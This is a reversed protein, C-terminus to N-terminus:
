YWVTGPRVTRARVESTFKSLLPLSTANVVDLVYRGHPADRMHEWTLSGYLLSDDSWRLDTGLVYESRSEFYIRADISAVPFVDLPDMFSPLKFGVGPVFDYTKGNANEAVFRRRGKSWTMFDPSRPFSKGESELFKKLWPEQERGEFAGENLEKVQSESLDFTRMDYWFALLAKM